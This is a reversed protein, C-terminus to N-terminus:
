PAATCASQTALWNTAALVTADDTAPAGTQAIVVDPPIRDDYQKGTRDAFLEVTLVLLAGDPLSVGQTATPVGYTAEGFSRSDPRGRFALTIAEGSIATLSDTLVAVPPDPRRLTYAGRSTRAYTLWGEPGELIGVEGNNYRWWRSFGAGDVFAGYPGVGLVPAVGELMPWMNGGRNHRLDIVWGCPDALDVTQVLSQLADAMEISRTWGTQPDTTAPLSFTPVRLYGFRGGVIEGDLSDAPHATAVTSM